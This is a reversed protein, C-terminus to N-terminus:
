TSIRALKTERAPETANHIAATAIHATVPATVADPEEESYAHSSATARISVTAAGSATPIKASRRGGKARKPPRSTMVPTTHNRAVRALAPSAVSYLRPRTQKHSNSGRSM